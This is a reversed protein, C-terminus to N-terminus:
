KSLTQWFFNLADDDLSDAFSSQLGPLGSVKLLDLLMAVLQERESRFDRRPTMYKGTCAGCQKKSPHMSEYGCFRCHGLPYKRLVPKTGLRPTVMKLRDVEAEAKHRLKETKSCLSKYRKSASEMDRTAIVARKTKDHCVLLDRGLEERIVCAISAEERAKICDQRTEETLDRQHSASHEAAAKVVKISANMECAEAMLKQIGDERQELDLKALEHGRVWETCQSQAKKLGKMQKLIVCGIRDMKENWRRQITRFRDVRDLPLPSNSCKDSCTPCSGSDVTRFREIICKTHFRHSCGLTFTPDTDIDVFCLDCISEM